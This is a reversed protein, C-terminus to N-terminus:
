FDLLFTKEREEKGDKSTSWFLEAKQPGLIAVRPKWQLLRKLDDELLYSLM